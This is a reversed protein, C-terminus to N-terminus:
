IYMLRLLTMCRYIITYNISNVHEFIKLIPLVVSFIVSHLVDPFYVPRQVSKYKTTM